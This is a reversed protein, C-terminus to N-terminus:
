LDHRRGDRVVRRDCTDDGRLGAHDEATTADVLARDRGRAAHTDADVCRLARDVDAIEQHRAVLGAGRHLRLRDFDVAAVEVLRARDEALSELRELIALALDEDEEGEALFSGVRVLRFAAWGPPRKM